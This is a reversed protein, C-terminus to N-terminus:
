GEIYRRGHKGIRRRKFSIFERNAKRFFRTSFRGKKKKAGLIEMHGLVALEREWENEPLDLGATTEEAAAKKKIEKEWSEFKM